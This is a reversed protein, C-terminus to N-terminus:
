PVAPREREGASQGGVIQIVYVWPLVIPAGDKNEIQHLTSIQRALDNLYRQQDESLDSDPPNSFSPFYHIAVPVGAKVDFV